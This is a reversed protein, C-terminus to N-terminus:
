VVGWPKRKRIIPALAYRVADWGHNHSDQIKPLVDGTRADTKYRYLRAEEIMGKCRPHIVIEEYGRLHEVGDEVSGPWKPAAVVDLGLERLASITEPRASDGRITHSDAGPVRRFRRDIEAASWGVGREDYEIYLRSDVIWNRTLTTPDRAFGWDAGYYPGDWHDEPEFEEVRYKGAFVQADSRMWPEGGWVHAHAEPDRRLLEEQERHLTEPMWPNDQWSVRRIIARDESPPDEVFRKYTPDDPLAPNFSVWIESGETRITPILIHWSEESVAEAEEIWCIDIGEMSKITHPDRKIGLFVFETGNTGYIRSREVTYFGGLGMAQIQDELLRHVSDRISSQYERSCLIRIGIPSSAGHLLLARAVSWSKASGRGGYVVRYRVSGLPPDMLFGLAAPLEVRAPENM